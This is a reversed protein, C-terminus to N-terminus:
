AFTVPADTGQTSVVEGIVTVGECGLNRLGALIEDVQGAGVSILLGGNTQPDSFVLQADLNWADSFGVQDGFSQINRYAGSPVIGSAVLPWADEIVPVAAADIRMGMRAGKAMELLHGALGFGTVDTLAHVAQQQGLWAGAINIARAQDLFRVYGESSLEGVKLATAMIGIGLPKTLLLVDGARAGANTKIMRPNVMGVAALGFIPQPNNITHGGALPIGVAKCADVGGRMVEQIVPIELKGVPYGVIANALLPAGGMAYVDSLANAAAIWGFHYPDDVVPSQFDNTFVLAQTENIRFVAADDSNEIGVLLSADDCRKPVKSLIQHLTDPEIKCGCGGAQSFETLRTTVAADVVTVVNGMQAGEM